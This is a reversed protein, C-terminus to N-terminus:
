PKTPLPTPPTDVVTGFDVLRAADGKRPPRIVIVGDAASWADPALTEAM